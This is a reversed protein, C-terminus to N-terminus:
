PNGHLIFDISLGTADAIAKIVSQKATHSGTETRSYTAPSIGIFETFERQTFGCDVRYLKLRKGMARAEVTGGIPPEIGLDIDPMSARHYTAPEVGQEARTQITALFKAANDQINVMYKPSSLEDVSVGIADAIHEMRKVSISCNNAIVSFAHPKLGLASDFESHSMGAMDKLLVLNNIFTVKTLLRNYKTKNKRKQM